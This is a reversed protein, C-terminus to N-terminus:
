EAQVESERTYKDIINLIDKILVVGDIMISNCIYVSGEKRLIDDKIDLAEQKTM